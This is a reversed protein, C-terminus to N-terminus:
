RRHLLRIGQVTYATANDEGQECYFGNSPQHETQIHRVIMLLMMGCRNVHSILACCSSGGLINALGAAKAEKTRSVLFGDKNSLVVVPRGRLDPRFVQECSAYFSNCDVLAFM